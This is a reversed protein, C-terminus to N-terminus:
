SDHLHRQVSSKSDAGLTDIKIAKRNGEMVLHKICYTNWIILSDAKVYFSKHKRRYLKDILVLVILIHSDTIACYSSDFLSSSISGANSWSPGIIVTTWFYAANTMVLSNWFTLLAMCCPLGFWFRVWLIMCRSLWSSKKTCLDICEVWMECTCQKTKNSAVVVTM